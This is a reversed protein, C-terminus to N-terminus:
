MKIRKWFLNLFRQQDPTLSNKMHQGTMVSFALAEDSPRGPTGSFNSSGPSAGASTKAPPRQEYTPQEYTPYNNSDIFTSQAPPSYCGSNIDDDRDDMQSDAEYYKARKKGLILHRSYLNSKISFVECDVEGTIDKQNTRLAIIELFYFFFVNGRRDELQVFRKGPYGLGDCFQKEAEFLIQIEMKGEAYTKTIDNNKLVKGAEIFGVTKIHGARYKGQYVVENFTDPETLMDPFKQTILALTPTEMQSTIDAKFAGSLLHVVVTCHHSGNTPDHWM